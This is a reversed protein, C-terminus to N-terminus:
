DGLTAFDERMQDLREDISNIRHRRVHCGHCLGVLNDLNNNSADSDIHHVEFPGTDNCDECAHKEKEHEDWYTERAIRRHRVGRAEAM